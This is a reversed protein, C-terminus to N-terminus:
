DAILKKFQEKCLENHDFVRTFSQICLLIDTEDISGKDLYIGIIYKKKAATLTIPTRGVSHINGGSKETIYGEALLENVINTVTMKTLGTFASLDTRSINESMIIKKLILNKNKIKNKAQNDARM